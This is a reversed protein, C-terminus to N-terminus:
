RLEAQSYYNTEAVHTSTVTGNAHGNAHGTFLSNAGDDLMDVALRRSHILVKHRQGNLSQLRSPRALMLAVPPCTGLLLGGFKQHGLNLTGRGSTTFVRSM